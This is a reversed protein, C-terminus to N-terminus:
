VVLENGYDFLYIGNLILLKELNEYLEFILVFFDVFRVNIGVCVDCMVEIYFVFNWNNDIGDFLYLLEFNEYVIM